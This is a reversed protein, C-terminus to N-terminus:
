LKRAWINLNLNHCVPNLRLIDDIQDESYKYVTFGAMELWQSLTKLNYTSKHWDEPKSEGTSWNRGAFLMYCLHNLNWVGSNYAEIMKDFNTTQIYITAGSKCLKGWHQIADHAQQLSLHEIIDKAIIEDISNEPYQLDLINMQTVRNDFPDTDINIYGDLIDQACGLNLKLSDM